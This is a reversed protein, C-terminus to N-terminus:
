RVADRAEAPAKAAHEGSGASGEPRGRRGKKDAGRIRGFLKGAGHIHLSFGRQVGTEFETGVSGSMKPADSRFLM